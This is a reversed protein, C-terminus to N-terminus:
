FCAYLPFISPLSSLESEKAPVKKKRAMIKASYKASVGNDDGYLHCLAEYYHHQKGIRRERKTEFGLIFIM